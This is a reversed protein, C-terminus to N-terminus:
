FPGKFRQDYTYFSERTLDAEDLSLMKEAARIISVASPYFLNELPRTRPCPVHAYGLREVRRKLFGFCWHSVLAALEAGFGCFVWEYDAVICHGTKRVSAARPSL